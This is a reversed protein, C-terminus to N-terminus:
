DASLAWRVSFEAAARSGDDNVLLVPGVVQESFCREMRALFARFAERGLRADGQSPEHVVDDSLLALM